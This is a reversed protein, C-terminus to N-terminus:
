KVGEQKQEASVKRAIVAAYSKLVTQSYFNHDGLSEAEFTQEQGEPTKVQAEVYGKVYDKIESYMGTQQKWDYSFAKLWDILESTSVRKNDVLDQKRKERLNRFQKDALAIFDKINGPQTQVDKVIDRVFQEQEKVLEPLHATIIRRMQEDGPFQTYLFICRRLFAEPLEREDNSTIFIVPPHKAEIIEGTEADPIKFRGEDLELLLDNPFDIDAKDIEDILLISPNEKTSTLFALAMPGFQRYDVPKKKRLEPDLEALQADRLRAVHDFTYLGDAAKTTSKIFWEFYHQLYEEGYWEYAVARSLQTKGSGPEGKILIPRKLIQALRVIEKIDDSPIYPPIMRGEKTVVKGEADKKVVFTARVSGEEKDYKFEGQPIQPTAAYPALVGDREQYFRSPYVKNNKTETFPYSKIHSM